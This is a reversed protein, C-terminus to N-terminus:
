YLWINSNHSFFVRYGGESYFNEIHADREEDSKAHPQDFALEEVMIDCLKGITHALLTKTRVTPLSKRTLPTLCMPWTLSPTHMSCTPKAAGHRYGPLTPSGNCRNQHSHSQQILLRPPGSDQTSIQGENVDELGPWNPFPAECHVWPFPLLLM